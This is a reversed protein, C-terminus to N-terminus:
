LPLSKKIVKEFHLQIHDDLMYGGLEKILDRKGVGYMIENAEELSSVCNLEIVYERRLRALMVYLRHYKDLLKRDSVFTLNIYNKEGLIVTINGGALYLSLLMALGGFIVSIIILLFTGM